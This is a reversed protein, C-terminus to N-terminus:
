PQLAPQPKWTTRQKMMANLITLLKRMCAVLAVKPQKHAECLRDYLTKILPNYRTAVLTAMYLVRRLAARGAKVLRYGRKTGSDNAFPAVGVLAAIQRRTLHGLEPLWAILCAQTVPGVGPVSSLLRQHTHWAPSNQIMRAIEQDLEDRRAKLYAIDHAIRDQMAQTVRRKRNQEATIMNALQGRRTVLEVLDRHDQDPLTRLKPKVAEAYRALAYADTKDTKALVGLGRAFHHTHAPNAVFVPLGAAMLAVVLPVELKGTAELVILAPILAQCHQVLAAVGEDTYPYAWTQKNPTVAGDLRDKSVDIGVYAAPASADCVAPNKM